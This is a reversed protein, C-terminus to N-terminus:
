PFLDVSLGFQRSHWKFAVFYRGLEGRLKANIFFSVLITGITSVDDLTREVFLESLIIVAFKNVNNAVMM